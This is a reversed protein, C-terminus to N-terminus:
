VQVAGMKVYHDSQDRPIQRTSGDPARLMVLDSGGGTFGASPSASASPNGAPTPPTAGYPGQTGQPVSPMETRPMTSYQPLPGNNALKTYPSRVLLNQLTSSASTGLGLYPQLRGLYNAYQAQEYERQKRADALAEETSQFQLKAAESSANAQQNAGYISAIGSIASPIINAPSFWGAAAPAATSAVTAGTGAAAGSGAGAGASAGSAAGTAASGGLAGAIAPAAFLSGVAGVGLVNGWDVSGEYTGNSSDWTSRNMFPGGASYMDHWASSPDSGPLKMALTANPLAQAWSWPPVIASGSIPPYRVNGQADITYGRGTLAARNQLAFQHPDLAM